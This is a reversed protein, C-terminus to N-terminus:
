LSIDFTKNRKDFLVVTKINIGSDNSLETRMLSLKAREATKMNVDISAKAKSLLANIEEQSLEEKYDTYGLDLLHRDAKRCRKKVGYVHVSLSYKVVAGPNNTEM